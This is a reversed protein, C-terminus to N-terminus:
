RLRIVAGYGENTEQMPHNIIHHCAVWKRDPSLLLTGCVENTNARLGRGHGGVRWPGYTTGPELRDFPPPPPTNPEMVSPDRATRVAGDALNVTATGVWTQFVVVDNGRWELPWRAGQVLDRTEGVGKARKVRNDQFLSCGTFLGVIIALGALAALSCRV